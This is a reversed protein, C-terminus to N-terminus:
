LEGELEKTLDGALDVSFAKTNLYVRTYPKGDKEDVIFCVVRDM